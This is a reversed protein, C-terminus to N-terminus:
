NKEYSEVCPPAANQHQPRPDETRAREQAVWRNFDKGASAVIRFRMCVAGCGCTADCTGYSEGPSRMKLDLMRPPGPVVAVAKDMGPMWFTHIVDASTLQFRVVSDSPVHLEDSTKIGLSPYDFEWWWQHAVAHVTLAPSPPRFLPARAGLILGACICTVGATATTWLPRPKM